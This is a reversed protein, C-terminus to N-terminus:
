LKVRTIIAVFRSWLHQSVLTSASLSLITAIMLAVIRGINNEQIPWFAKLLGVALASALLPATVDQILWIWKETTMIRRFMLNFLLFNYIIGVILLIYAAGLMGYIPVLWIMLCSVIIAASSTLYVSLSTWGHALQMQFPIWNISGVLSGLLLISLLESLRSSIDANQTWFQLFTESFYILVISFSGAIVSVLQAGKHFSEALALSDNRAHFECFKPYFATIVPSVILIISGAVTVALSYLGFESLSLINSLLIKDITTFFLASLTFAAMGGAFRWVSSLSASSFKGSRHGQPLTSYTTAALIILTLISVAGQWLFFASITPSVWALIVVAGMGRLTAMFSNVANFLVQRQLGIIASRYVGEVFRLAMVLGMIAFAKALAETPLAEAKLWSTAVWNSCLAVGSIIVLAVGIALIEISRLLDRISQASRSGGTFRAMERGLTPTMGMDLLNLWAQFLTFLGLIGYAEVGLYKIYLPIFALTMFAAWGQGLFNAILNRKLLSSLIM